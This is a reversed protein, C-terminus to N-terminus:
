RHRHRTQTPGEIVGTRAQKREEFRCENCLDTKWKVWEDKRATVRFVEDAIGQPYSEKVNQVTVTNGDGRTEPVM